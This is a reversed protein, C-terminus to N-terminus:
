ISGALMGGAMGLAGGIQGAQKQRQGRQGLADQYTSINQANDMGYKAVGRQAQQNSYGDIKDATANNVQARYNAMQGAAQGRMNQEAGQRLGSYLLGRSNASSRVGALDHALGRRASDGYQNILNGKQNQLASMETAQKQQAQQRRQDQQQVLRAYGQDFAAGVEASDRLQGPLRARQARAENALAELDQDLPMAM